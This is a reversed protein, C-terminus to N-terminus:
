FELVLSKNGAANRSFSKWSNAARYPNVHSLTPVLADDLQIQNDNPHCIQLQYLLNDSSETAGSVEEKSNSSAAAMSIHRENLDMKNFMLNAIARDIINTESETAKKSESRFIFNVKQDLPGTQQCLWSM